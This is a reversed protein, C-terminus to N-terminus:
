PQGTWPTFEDMTDHTVLEVPILIPESSVPKGALSEFALSVARRAMARPDQSVSAVLRSGPQQMAYLAAPSADVSVIFFEDRGAQRAAENAGLATPDNMSFVADIHPLTALLASMYTLGGLMSGGSDGQDSLLNIGSHRALAANCGNVREMVASVPPGNLIVVDGKGGLREALYECAVEGASSNDSTVTIQAGAARVDLAVVLVGATKALEIVPGIKESDVANLVLLDYGDAAVAEIQAIQRALDYGSSMVSVSASPDEAAVAEAVERSIHAFFPNSLDSIIVAVKKTAPTEALATVPLHCGALLVLMTGYLPALGARPRKDTQPLSRGLVM